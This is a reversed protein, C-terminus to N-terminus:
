AHLPELGRRLDRDASRAWHDDHGGGAHGRRRAHLAHLGARHEGGGAAPAGVALAAGTVAFVPWRGFVALVGGIAPGVIIGSYRAASVWGYARGLEEPPVVDAVAAVEAPAAAAFGLGQIFRVAVLWEISLPLLFMLSAAAAVLLGVVRREKRGM